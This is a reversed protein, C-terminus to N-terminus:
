TRVKKDNASSAPSNTMNISSSANGSSSPTGTAGRATSNSNNGQAAQALRSGVAAAAGTGATKAATLAQGAASAIQRLPRVIPGVDLNSSSSVLDSAITPARRFVLAIALVMMAKMFTERLPLPGEVKKEVPLGHVVMIETTEPRSVKVDKLIPIAVSAVFVLVMLKISITFIAGIAKDALFATPRFLGFPLLIVALTTLIYFELQTLFIQFAMLVYAILLVFTMLVFVLIGMGIGFVSDTIKINLSDWLPGVADFGTSLFWSPSLYQSSDVGTGALGIAVFSEQIVYVLWPFGSVLLQFAGIMLVKKLLSALLDGGELAYYIGFLALEIVIFIKLLSTAHWSITSYRLSFAHVFTELTETLM